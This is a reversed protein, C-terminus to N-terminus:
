GLDIDDPDEPLAKINEAAKHLINALKRQTEPSSDLRAAIATKLARRAENVEPQVEPIDRDRGESWDYWQRARAMREGVARIRKLAANAVHRNKALYARGEETISYVKKNGDPASVAHGTEELYTLTPYIVGPSPSYFGSSLDELAKIVEYGHRPADALLALVVFRLEGDGVFRGFGGGMGRGFGGPFHRSFRRSGFRHAGRHCGHAYM